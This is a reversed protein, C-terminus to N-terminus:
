GETIGHVTMAFRPASTAVVGGETHQFNDVQANVLVGYLDESISVRKNRPILTMNGNLGVKVPTADTETAAITIDYMKGKSAGIVVAAPQEAKGTTRGAKAAAKAAAATGADQTDLDTTTSNSESM